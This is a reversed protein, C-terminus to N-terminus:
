WAVGCLDWFASMKMGTATLVLIDCVSYNKIYRGM